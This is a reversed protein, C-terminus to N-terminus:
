RAAPAVPPRLDPAAPAPPKSFFSWIADTADVDRSTRGVVRRPTEQPGGPWTHGGGEVRYLQVEAGARCRPYEIRSVHTGDFPARDPLQDVVPVTDCANVAVWGAVTREASLVEGLRQPGFRVEGGNWPMLPDETGNMVLVSVPRAPRCALRAPLNGAVAAVAVFRDPRECALRYAMM